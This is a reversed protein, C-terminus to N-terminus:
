NGRGGGERKLHAGATHHVKGALLLGTCGGCQVYADGLIAAQRTICLIASAAQVGAEHLHTPHNYALSPTQGKSTCSHFTHLWHQCVIVTEALLMCQRWCRKSRSHSSTSCSINSNACFSPGEMM